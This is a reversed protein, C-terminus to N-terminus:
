RWLLSFWRISEEATALHLGWNDFGASNVQAFARLKELREPDLPEPRVRRAIRRLM